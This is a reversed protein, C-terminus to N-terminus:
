LLYAPICKLVLDNINSALLNRNFYEEIKSRVTDDDGM